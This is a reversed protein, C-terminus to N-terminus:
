KAKKSKPAAKKAKQKIWGQSEAFKEMNPTDKLEITSGSKRTWIM